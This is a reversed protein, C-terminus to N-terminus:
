HSLCVKTQKPQEKGEHFAKSDAVTGKPCQKVPKVSFCVKHNYDMVATM